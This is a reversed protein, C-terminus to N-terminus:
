ISQSTHLTRAARKAIPDLEAFNSPLKPKEFDDLIPGDFEILSPYQVQLFTSSLYVGQWDIIGIMEIPRNKNIFINDSHLDNHWLISATHTENIPIIHPFFRVFDQIVAM